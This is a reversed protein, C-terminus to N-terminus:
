KVFHQGDHLRELRQDNEQVFIFHFHQPKFCLEFCEPSLNIAQVTLVAAPSFASASTEYMLRRFDQVPALPLERSALQRPWGRVPEAPVHVRQPYAPEMEATM